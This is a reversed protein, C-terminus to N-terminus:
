VWIHLFSNWIFPAAVNMNPRIDYCHGAHIFMMGHITTASSM